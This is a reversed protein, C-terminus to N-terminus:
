ILYMCILPVSKNTDKMRQESRQWATMLFMNFHAFFFELLNFNMSFCVGMDPLVPTTMGALKLATM